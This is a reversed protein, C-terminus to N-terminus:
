HIWFSLFKRRAPIYLEVDRTGTEKAAAFSRSGFDFFHYSSEHMMLLARLAACGCLANRSSASSSVFFVFFFIGASLFLALAKEPRLPSRERHAAESESICRM